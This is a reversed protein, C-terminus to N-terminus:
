VPRKKILCFLVCHLNRLSDEEEFGHVICFSVHVMHKTCVDKQFFTIPLLQTTQKQITRPKASSPSVCNAAALNNTKTSNTAKFFFIGELIHIRDQKTQNFLMGQKFKQTNKILLYCSCPITGTQNVKLTLAFHMDLTVWQWNIEICFQVFTRYVKLTLAFHM